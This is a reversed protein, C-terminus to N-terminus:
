GASLDLVLAEFVRRDGARARNLDRNCAALRDLVASSGLPRRRLQERAERVKAPPMRVGADRESLGRRLCDQLTLLQRFQWTIMGLLKHTSEGEELLRHTVALAQNADRRLLADTLQWSDAEAVASCVERLVAGDITGQFGLFAAAKQVESRLRGLDRGVIQVLLQADSRALRCGAARAAQEAFGVPDQDAAKFRELRGVKAVLNELRRGRSVGGVAAPTKAGTLVLVSSPCPNECYALLADLLAANASELERIVVVKVAGLMPPSRAADVASAGSDAATHVFFNFASPPGRLAASVAADEAERVRLGADGLFMCVAPVSV